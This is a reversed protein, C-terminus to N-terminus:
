IVGFREVFSSLVHRNLEMSVSFSELDRGGHNFELIIFLQDAGFMVSIVTAVTMQPENKYRYKYKVLFQM